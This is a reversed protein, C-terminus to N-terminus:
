IKPSSAEATKAESESLRYNLPRATRHTEPASPPALPNLHRPALELEM